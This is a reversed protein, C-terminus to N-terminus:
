LCCDVGYARLLVKGFGSSGWCRGPDCLFAIPLGISYPCSITTSHVEKQFLFAIFSSFAVGIREICWFGVNLRYGNCTAVSLDHHCKWVYIYGRGTGRIFVPELM